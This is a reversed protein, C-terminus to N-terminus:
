KSTKIEALFLFFDFNDNVTRLWSSFVDILNAWDAIFIGALATLAVALVDAFTTLAGFRNILEIRSKM